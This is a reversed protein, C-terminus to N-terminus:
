SRRHLFAGRSEGRGMAGKLSFANSLLHCLKKGRSIETSSNVVYIFADVTKCLEKISHSVEVQASPENDEDDDDLNNKEALLKSVREKGERANREREASYQFYM